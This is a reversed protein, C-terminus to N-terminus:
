TNSTAIAVFFAAAASALSAYVNWEASHLNLSAAFDAFKSPVGLAARQMMASGLWLFASGLGAVGALVNSCERTTQWLWCLVAWFIEVIAGAVSCFTRIAEFSCRLFASLIGAIAFVFNWFKRTAEASRRQLASFFGPISRVFNCFQRTTEKM